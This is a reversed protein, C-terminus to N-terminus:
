SNAFLQVTLSSKKWIDRRQRGEGGRGKGDRGENKGQLVSCWKPLKLSVL